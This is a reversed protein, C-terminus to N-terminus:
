NDKKHQILENLENAAAKISDTSEDMLSNDDTNSVDSETISFEFKLSKNNEIVSNNSNDLDLFNRKHIKKADGLIQMKTEKPFEDNEDPSKINDETNVYLSNVQHSESDAVIQDNEELNADGIQIQNLVNAYSSKSKTANLKEPCSSSLHGFLKCSLCKPPHGVLQILCTQDEIKNIGIQSLLREHHIIGYKIKAKFVGNEIHSMEEDRYREKELNLVECEVMEKIHKNVQLETMNNPLWLVRLVATISVKKDIHNANHIMVKKENIEIEKDVINEISVGENFGVVWTKSSGYQALNKIEKSVKDGFKSKISSFIQKSTAIEDSEIHIKISNKFKWNAQRARNQDVMSKKKALYSEFYYNRNGSEISGPPAM